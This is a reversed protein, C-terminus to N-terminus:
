RVVIRRSAVDGSPLGCYLWVSFGSKLELSKTIDREFSGDAATSGVRRAWKVGSPNQAWLSFPGAAGCNGRIIDKRRDASLKLAPVMFDASAGIKPVVVRDGARVRILDGEGDAFRGKFIGSTRVYRGYRDAKVWWFDHDARGHWTDKLTGYPDAGAWLEVDVYGNADYTGVFRARGLLVEVFPVLVTRGFLDIRGDTLLNWVSVRDRGKIDLSFTEDYRGDSATVVDRSVCTGKKFARWQCVQIRIRAGKPGKGSVRDAERDVVIRMAPVTVTRSRTGKRVTVKDLMRVREDEHGCFEWKGKRSTKVSGKQKLRGDKDKWVVSLTAKAPGVGAVCSHGLWAHVKLQTAALVNAPATVAALVVTLITAVALSTSRRVPRHSAHM